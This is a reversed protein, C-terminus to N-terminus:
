KDNSGSKKNIKRFDIWQDFLGGVALALLFIQQFIILLYVGSRIWISIRYKNLFFLLISMGQFLYITGMVMLSNIALLRIGGATLFLAFGSAILGWVMREPAQWRDMPGFDPYELNGRRFLPRSIVVNIWVILGTGIILLAPYVKAIIDTLVKGYEQLQFVKEQDLGINEYAHINEMLNNQFYGLIMEMPGTKRSLAILFLFITGIFLMFSTGWFITLGFTFRRRFIESMVLGMLAFELCFFVIQPYGALKGILGVILLTIAFIKLGQHLGLKTTYYLFPLPTLLSLFPGIFPIWASALLLLISSCVCGM